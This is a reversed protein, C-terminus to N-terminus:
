KWEMKLPSQKGIEVHEDKIKLTTSVYLIKLTNCIFIYM